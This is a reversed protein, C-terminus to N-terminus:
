DYFLERFQGQVMNIVKKYLEFDFTQDLETFEKAELYGDENLKGRIELLIDETSEPVEEIETVKVITGDVSFEVYDGKSQILKGVLTVYQGKFKSIMDANIRQFSTPNETM